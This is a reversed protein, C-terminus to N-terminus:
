ERLVSIYAVALMAFVFAQISGIFFGFFANLIPMSLINIPLGWWKFIQWLIVPVMSIVIGGAFINGFLRFSHSLVKSAESFINSPLLFWVPEVYSKLYKLFGKKRIASAHAVFLVLFGLGVCTNVDKTPAAVKPIISVWNCILVFLFLSVIFSLFKRGDEGLSDKLLNDFWSVLFEIVVQKRSPAQRLNRTAWICFATIFIMIILSNLITWGHITVSTSTFPITIKHTAIQALERM